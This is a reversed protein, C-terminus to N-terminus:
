VADGGGQPLLHDRLRLALAHDLGRLPVQAHETGATHVVLTGLGHRRELPGQTVDIHQVRSRPVRIVHRWWVGRRISLGTADVSWAAHRHELPPWRQSWWALLVALVLWAGGLLAKLWDPLPGLLAVPVLVAGSGGAVVGTVIRCVTRELPLARPDLPREVGDFPDPVPEATPEPAIAREANV